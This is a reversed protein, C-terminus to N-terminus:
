KRIMRHTVRNSGIQYTIVDNIKPNRHLTDVLVISGTSISPEMSGSLVIYPRIGLAYLVLFLLSIAAAAATIRKTTKGAKM